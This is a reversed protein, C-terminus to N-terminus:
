FSGKEIDERCYEIYNEKHLKAKELAVVAQEILKKASGAPEPYFNVGVSFVLNHNKVAKKM